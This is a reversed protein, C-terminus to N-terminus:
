GSAAGFGMPRRILGLSTARDNLQDLFQMVIGRDELGVPEALYAEVCTDQVPLCAVLIIPRGNNGISLRKREPSDPTLDVFDLPPQHLM